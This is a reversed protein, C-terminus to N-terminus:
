LVVIEQRATNFGAPTAVLQCNSNEQVVTTHQNTACGTQRKQWLDDCRGASLAVWPFPPHNKNPYKSRLINRALLAPPDSILVALDDVHQSGPQTRRNQKNTQAVRQRMNRWSKVPNELGSCSVASSINTLLFCALGLASGERYIVPRSSVSRRTTQHKM